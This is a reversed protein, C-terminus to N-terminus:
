GGFGGHAGGRVARVVDVGQRAAHPGVPARVAQPHAGEGGRLDRLRHLEEVAAGAHGAAAAHHGAGARRARAGDRGPQAGARRVQGVDPLEPAREGAGERVPDPLPRHQGAADGDRHVDQLDQGQAGPRHGAGPDQAGRGPAEPPDRLQGGHGLDQQLQFAQAAGAQPVRPVGRPHARPGAGGAGRVARLQDVPLHLPALLAERQRPARQRHRARVRRAGQGRGRQEGGAARLRVVRRLQRPEQARGGRVAHPAQGGGRGRHGRPGRAAERVAHLEPVGSHGQGQAPQGARVQLHGARARVRPDAGRVACVERVAPRRGGRAGHGGRRARVGRARAGGRGAGDRVQGLAGVGQGVPPVAHLPRLHAARAGVGQLADGDERVREVRQPGAGLGDVARLHRARQRDAGDDGGHPHVQVLVPGRPAAPQHRPGVRQARPEREQADDGDGRVEAVALQQPLAQGARAGVGVARPRLGEAVGGM